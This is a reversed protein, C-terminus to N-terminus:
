RETANPHANQRISPCSWSTTGTLGTQWDQAVDGVCSHFCMQNSAHAGSLKSSRDLGVEFILILTAKCQRRWITASMAALRLSKRLAVSLTSSRAPAFTSGHHLWPCPNMGTWVQQDSAIWLRNILRCRKFWTVQILAKGTRSSDDVDKCPRNTEPPHSSALSGSSGRM